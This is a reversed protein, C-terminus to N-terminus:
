EGDFAAAVSITTVLLVLRAWDVREPAKRIDGRRGVLMRQIARTKVFM